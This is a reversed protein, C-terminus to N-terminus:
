KKRGKRYLNAIVAQARVYRGWVTYSTSVARPSYHELVSAIVGHAVGVALLNHHRDMHLAFMLIMLGPSFLLYWNPFHFTMFLIVLLVKIWLDDILWTSNLWAYLMFFVTQQATGWIPYYVLTSEWFTFGTPHRYQPQVDTAYAASVILLVVAAVMLGMIPWGDLPRLLGFSFAIEAIKSSFLSGILFVVVVSYSFACLMLVETHASRMIRIPNM